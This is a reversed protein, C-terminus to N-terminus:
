KFKKLNEGFTEKYIKGSKKKEYTQEFNRWIDM